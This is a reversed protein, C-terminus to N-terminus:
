TSAATTASARSSPSRAPTASRSGSASGAACSCSAAPRATCSPTAPSSRTRPRRVAADRSRRPRRVSSSGAAPCARASTTTPTASAAAPDGRAAPVRRVVPRRHRAAHVDITDDPLGAGGYRRAVEGGLMAGVSRHENRVAVEVGCRPATTAAGARGARDARQGPGAGPRPGPRPSGRRAAGDPLEPVHLVRRWTSGAPRGTRRGGPRVDLLETTGSRRTSPASAWSPWTARPGGRRPVPLLEGRVGAQRHVARAAGPEPHRHRGPLHGPPLGADHRLRLRDAARHRLRVGRRRAAGRGRVDRGTKLQGDVQVTVRDRLRNLLLTQQAEALGLEWPTGAHKLSNLPSAGTGGDHGSILIVDAKLKAVGAAVTGVGVEASWSSTCGPPRTSADEPRPRAPGPGRHLLHRPAAAALDPRRGPHRAPDQRDVAVGQQRAAPRGRRAERGAGDQDAPRRRQGPVRHHGRVPRQRDAQGGLPAAPDHLREVDEGGEGTNSKGGLRNM